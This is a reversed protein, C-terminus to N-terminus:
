ISSSFIKEIELLMNKKGPNQVGSGFEYWAGEGINIYKGPKKPENLLANEGLYDASYVVEMIKRSEKWTKSQKRVKGDTVQVSQISREAFSIIITNEFKKEKSIERYTIELPAERGAEEFIAQTLEQLAYLWEDLNEPIASQEAALDLKLIANKPARKWSSRKVLDEVFSRWVLKLKGKWEFDDELTFGETFIEQEDITDRELYKLDYSVELGDTLLNAEITYTNRYPPPLTEDEYTARFLM